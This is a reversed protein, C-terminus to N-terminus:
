RNRSAFLADFEKSVPEFSEDSWHKMRGFNGGRDSNLGSMLDPHKSKSAIHHRLDVCMSPAILIGKESDEINKKETKLRHRDANDTSSNRTETGETM